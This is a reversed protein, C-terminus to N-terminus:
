PAGQLAHITFSHISILTIKMLHFTSYYFIVFVVLLFANKACPKLFSLCAHKNHLKTYRISIRTQFFARIAM